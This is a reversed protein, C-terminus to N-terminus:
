NLFNVSVGMLFRRPNLPYHPISFYDSGGISGQNVHSFLVFFRARSLQMNLYANMYPFNGCKVERQNYFTMTSPQYGPAYYRTYWDCDVGLQVQLVHAVRFLLYLNSYVTLQPLPLVADNSSKQYTVRNCWNLARWHFDQSVRLSLVQVNGGHQLPLAEPGFYIMNQVNEVGLDASTFTHPIDLVGGFRVRRTKNFDNKWVFHNSVYEQMLWPATTNSFHGYAKVSVSDGLLRIRATINGDANIEGAAAGAIGLRVTGAYNFLRGQTKTLQAGVYLLNQTKKGKIRESYPYPTLGEPRDAGVPVTDVCQNYRRVEHTIFASLGAKAWKNFGELLDVGLTNRLSWYNTNDMTWQDSIYHNTWFDEDRSNTNYFRHEDGSYAMTWIFSSVPVYESAIISDEYVSDYTHHYFGVKYRHNMYFEKGLVRSRSATLNTPINKPNIKSMGGQIVAPDQIYLDDTIGGNEQQLSNYSNFFGQFEYRDGMYSGFLDWSFTKAAQNAYSGKSYPYDIKLGVQGKPSFNGSFLFRFWDQAIDRGGGTNYGVISMPIRTNYFKQKEESPLWFRKADKLFFESVPQQNMYIMNKGSSAQNGTTAFADSVASPVATRYYDIMVTDISAPQHIGLPQLLSWAYSPEVVPDKAGAVSASVLATIAVIFITIRLKM